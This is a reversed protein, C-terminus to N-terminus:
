FLPATHYYPMQVKPRFPVQEDVTVDLQYRESSTRSPTDLPVIRVNVPTVMGATVNVAFTLQDFPSKSDSSDWISGRRIVVKFRNTGPPSGVRIFDDKLSRVGVSVQDNPSERFVSWQRGSTNDYFDVYGTDPAASKPNIGSQTSCGSLLALIIVTFTPQKRIAVPLSKM